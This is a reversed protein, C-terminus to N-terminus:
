NTADNATGSVPDNSPDDDVWKNLIDGTEADIKFEIEEGAQNVVEVDYTPKGEFTDIEAEGITGPQAELAIAVAEEVTIMASESAVSTQVVLASAILAFAASGIM